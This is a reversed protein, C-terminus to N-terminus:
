RNVPRAAGVAAGLFLGHQLRVTQLNLAINTMPVLDTPNKCVGNSDSPTRRRLHDGWHLMSLRHKATVRAADLLQKQVIRGALGGLSKQLLRKIM